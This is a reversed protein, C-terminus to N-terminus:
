ANVCYRGVLALLEDFGVPKRLHLLGLAAAKQAVTETASCLIVPIRALTPDRVQEMRFQWGDKVPMTLDLVIVCPDFGDRLRDLAQQGEAAGVVGYGEVRLAAELAERLARDDDIVLM